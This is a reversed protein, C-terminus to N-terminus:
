EDWFWIKKNKPPCLLYGWFKAVRSANLKFEPRNQFLNRSSRYSEQWKVPRIYRPRKPSPVWCAMGVRHNEFHRGRASCLKLVPEYRTANGM